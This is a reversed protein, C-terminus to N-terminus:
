AAKLEVTFTVGERGGFTTNMKRLEAMKTEAAERNPKSYKGRAVVEGSKSYLTEIITFM